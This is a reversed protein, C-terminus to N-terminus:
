AVKKVEDIITQMDKKTLTVPYAQLVVKLDEIDTPLFDCIKKIHEDKLRTIDLGELAKSLTEHDKQNLKAFANVYDKTRQSLVGLETDRKEINKIAEKVETLSMVEEEIIEPNTM